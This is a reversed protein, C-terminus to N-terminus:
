DQSGEGDRSEQYRCTWRGGASGPKIKKLRQNRYKQKKKEETTKVKVVIPVPGERYGTPTRTIRQRLLAKYVPSKFRIGHDLGRWAWKWVAVMTVPPKPLPGEAVRIGGGPLVRVLDECADHFHCGIGRTQTLMTYLPQAFHYPNTDSEITLETLRARADHKLGRYQQLRYYPHNIQPLGVRDIARSTVRIHQHQNEVVYYEPNVEKKLLQRYMAPSSTWIKWPGLWVDLYMGQLPEAYNPGWRMKFQKGKIEVYVTNLIWPLAEPCRPVPQYRYGRADYPRLNQLQIGDVIVECSLQQGPVSLDSNRWYEWNSCYYNATGCYFGTEEFDRKPWDLPVIDNPLDLIPPRHQSRPRNITFHDLRVAQKYRNM